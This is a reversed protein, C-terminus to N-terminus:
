RTMLMLQRALLKSSLLGGFYLLRFVGVVKLWCVVWKGVWQTPIKVPNVSGSFSGPATIESNKAM